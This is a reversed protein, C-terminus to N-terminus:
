NDLFNRVIEATEKTHYDLFGHGWQPLELVKGNKLYPAIRRTPVVLDDNTNLVLIPAEVDGITEPYTYSFAARHGWPKKDGGQVIDPFKRMLDAPTQEPGRWNWSGNWMRLLHSGDEQPATVDGMDQYQKALEEETYVPASILVLHKVRDPHQRALEVSIKSGTHYGMLDVEEFDFANMVDGHARAFDAITPPRDPADSMGYGPTDPAVAVRDRGIEGLWTEYVIGSIPSLHFCMLPRSTPKEPRAVRVHMQGYGGDVYSREVPVNGIM